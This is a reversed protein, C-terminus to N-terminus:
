TVRLLATRQTKALHSCGTLGDPCYSQEVDAVVYHQGDKAEGPTAPRAQGRDLLVVHAFLLALRQLCGQPRLREVQVLGRCVVPLREVVEDEPRVRGVHGLLLHDDASDTGELQCNGAVFRLRCDQVEMAAAVHRPGRAGAGVKGDVERAPDAAAGQGDLVPQAWLV